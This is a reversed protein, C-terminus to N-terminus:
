LLSFLLASIALFTVAFFLAAERLKINKSSLSIAFAGGSVVLAGWAMSALSVQEM